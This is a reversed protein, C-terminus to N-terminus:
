AATGPTARLAGLVRAAEAAVADLRDDLGELPGDRLAKEVEACLASLALAGVSASSSKLTHAVTRLAGRDGATRAGAWQLLAHDLAVVYAGLVRQLLGGQGSPDLERLRSLAQADLVADLGGATSAGAEAPGCPVSLLTHLSSPNM